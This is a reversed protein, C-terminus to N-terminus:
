ATAEESPVYERIQDAIRSIAAWTVVHCGATVTGNAEIKEIRFFGLRCQEGNATWEKGRAMVAEVLRLGLKAHAVPFSVGRTTEVTDDVIRLETPILHAHNLHTIEGTLWDKLMRKAIAKFGRNALTAKREREREAEAKRAAVRGMYFGLEMKDAPLEPLTQDKLDFVEIFEGMTQVILGAEGLLRSKKPERSAHSDELLKEVERTWSKVIQALDVRSYSESLGPVRFKKASHPVAQRMGGQHQSTTMSYSTADFLYVDTGDAAKVIAGIATSYSYLIPGEFSVRAPCEGAEHTQHAWAHFIEDTKFRKTKSM